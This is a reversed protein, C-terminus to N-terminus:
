CYELSRMTCNRVKRNYENRNFMYDRNADINLPSENNPDDLMSIVSVVISEVTHVPLWRENRSEYGFNNEDDGPDHLISICVKGDKGINPHWMPCLFRMKPPMNPFDDPFIIETPFIGGEYPTGSPGIITVRWKFIDNEDILGCSFFQSPDNQLQEYMKTLIRIATKRNSM